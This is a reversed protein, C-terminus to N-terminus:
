NLKKNIKNIKNRNNFKSCECKDNQLQIQEPTMRRRNRPIHPALAMDILIIISLLAVLVTLRLLLLPPAKPMPM